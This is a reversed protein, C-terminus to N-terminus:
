EHSSPPLINRPFIPVFNGGQVTYSGSVGYSCVGDTSVHARAYSVVRIYTYIYKTKQNYTFISSYTKTVLM